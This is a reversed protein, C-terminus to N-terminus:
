STSWAEKDNLFIHMREAAGDMTWPFEFGHGYKSAEDKPVASMQGCGALRRHKPLALLKSSHNHVALTDEKDKNQLYLLRFNGMEWKGQVSWGAAEMLQLSDFTSPLVTPDEDEGPNGGDPNQGQEHEDCTRLKM